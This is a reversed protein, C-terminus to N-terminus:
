YRRLYAVTSGPFHTIEYVKKFNNADVDDAEEWMDFTLQKLQRKVLEAQYNFDAPPWPDMVYWWRALIQGVLRSKRDRERTSTSMALQEQDSDGSYSEGDDESSERRATRAPTGTPILEEEDDHPISNSTSGSVLPREDSDNM